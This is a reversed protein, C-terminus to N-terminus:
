ISTSAYDSIIIDDVNGIERNSSGNEEISISEIVPPLSLPVPNKPNDNERMFDLLNTESLRKYRNFSLDILVL